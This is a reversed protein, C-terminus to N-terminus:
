KNNGDLPVLCFCITESTSSIIEIQFLIVMIIQIFSFILILYLMWGIFYLLNSGNFSISIDRGVM